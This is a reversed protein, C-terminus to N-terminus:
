YENRKVDDSGYEDVGFYKENKKNKRGDNYKSKKKKKGKLKKKQHNM